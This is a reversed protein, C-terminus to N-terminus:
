KLNGAKQLLAMRKEALVPGYQERLCDPCLSHSFDADSREEIYREVPVWDKGVRIKKCFSCIPLLGELYKVRNLVRRSLFAIFFALVSVLATELLSESWNLPTEEAGLLHHPLDFIEDIWILAIVLTFGVLGVLLMKRELTDKKMKQEGFGLSIELAAAADPAPLRLRVKPLV